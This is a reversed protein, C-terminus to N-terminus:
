PDDACPGATPNCGGLSRHRSSFKVPWSAARAARGTSLPTPPTSVRADGRLDRDFVFNIGSTRSVVDLVTRLPRRPLGALDPSPRQARGSIREISLATLQSILRENNPDLKLTQGLRAQAEDLKGTARLTGAESVAQAVAQGRAQLLGLRLTMSDPYRTLGGELEM